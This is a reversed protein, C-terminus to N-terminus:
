KKQFVLFKYDSWIHEGFIKLLKEGQYFKKELIEDNIISEAYYVRYPWFFRGQKIILDFGLDETFQIIKQVSIKVRALYNWKHFPDMMIIKSKEKTMNACNTISKKMKSINKIASFCGASIIIDYKKVEDYYNEASSVIYNIQPKSNITKAVNIMEEFDVADIKIKSNFTSIISSLEGIGCGIDLILIESSNEYFKSNIIPELFERQVKRILSNYKENKWLIKSNGEQKARFRWYEDSDIIKRKLTKKIMMYFIFLIKLLSNKLIIEKNKIKIKFM